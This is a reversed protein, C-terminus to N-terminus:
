WLIPGLPINLPFSLTLRIAIIVHM